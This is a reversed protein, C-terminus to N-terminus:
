PSGLGGAMRGRGRSLGGRTGAGPRPARPRRHGPRRNRGRDDFPHVFVLERPGRGRASARIGRRLERRGSSEAGHRRARHGQRPRGSPCVVPAAIGLRAAHFAVALWSQRREGRGCRTAAGGRRAPRCTAAGREKFSGTIRSIERAQRPGTAGTLVALRETPRARGDGRGHRRAAAAPREVDRSPSRQSAQPATVPRRRGDFPSSRPRTPGPCGPRTM